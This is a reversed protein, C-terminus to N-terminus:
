WIKMLGYDSIQMVFILVTTKFSINYVQFLNSRKASFRSGRIEVSRLAKSPLNKTKMVPRNRVKQDWTMAM